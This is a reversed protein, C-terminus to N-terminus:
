ARAAAPPPRPCSRTRSRSSAPRGRSRSGGFARRRGPRAWTGGCRARRRSGARRARPRRMLRRVRRTAANAYTRASTRTASATGNASLTELRTSASTSAWPVACACRTAALTAPRSPRGASRCRSTASAPESTRPRTTTTPGRPRSSASESPGRRTPRDYASRGSIAATSASPSTSCPRRELSVSPPSQQVRRDRDHPVPSADSGDADGPACAGDVRPDAAIADGHPRDGHGRERESEREGPEECARQGRREAGEGARRVTEPFAVEGGAGLDHPRLLLLLHGGGEVVHGSAELPHELRLALEDPVRRVLEARGERAEAQPELRGRRLGVVRLELAFERRRLVLRLAQRLEQGAEECEGALARRLPRRHDVERRRDLRRALAPARLRLHSGAM